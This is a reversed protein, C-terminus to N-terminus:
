QLYQTPLLFDARLARDLGLDWFAGGVLLKYVNFKLLEPLWSQLDERFPVYCAVSPSKPYVCREM